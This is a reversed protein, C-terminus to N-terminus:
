TVITTESRTNQVNTRSFHLAHKLRCMELTITWQVWKWPLFTDTRNVTKSQPFHISRHPSSFWFIKDTMGLPLGQLIPPLPPLTSTTTIFQRPVELVVVTCPCWGSQRFMKSPDDNLKNEVAICYQNIQSPIRSCCDGQIVIHNEPGSDETSNHRLKYFNNSMTDFDRLLKNLDQSEKWCLIM